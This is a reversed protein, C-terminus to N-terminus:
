RAMWKEPSPTSYHDRSSPDPANAQYPCWLVHHGDFSLSHVGFIVRALDAELAFRDIQKTLDLLVGFVSANLPELAAALDIM